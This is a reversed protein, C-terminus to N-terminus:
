NFVAQYVYGDAEQAIPVLFIEMAGLNDHSCSYIRQPLLQSLPGKFRIQFPDRSVGPYDHRTMATAEFLVLPLTETGNECQVEFEQDVLPLFTALDIADSM